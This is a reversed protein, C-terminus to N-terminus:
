RTWSFIKASFSEGNWYSLLVESPLYTTSPLIMRMDASERKL